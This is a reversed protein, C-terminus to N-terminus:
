IEKFHTHTLSSYWSPISSNMSQNILISQLFFVTILKALEPFHLVSVVKFHM